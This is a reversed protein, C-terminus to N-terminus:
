KRKAKASKASSYPGYYAKGSASYSIARVKYKYTKGAKLKTHTYYFNGYKDQHSGVLSSTNITVNKKTNYVYIQYKSAGKVPKWTLRIKRKDKGSLAKVSLTTAYPKKVTVTVTKTARNFRNDQAATMTIVATGADKIEVKGTAPDVAAVKSNSSTYFIDTEASAKNDFSGEGLYKIASSGGNITQDAREVKVAIVKEQQRYYKTESSTITIEAEGAGITKLNGESDVRVVDINDSEFTFEADKNLAKDQLNVTDGYTITMDDLNMLNRTKKKYKYVEWVQIEGNMFKDTLDVKATTTEASANEASNNETSETISFAAKVEEVDTTIEEKGNSDKYKYALVKEGFDDKTFEAPMPDPIEFAIGYFDGAKVTVTVTKEVGIVENVRVTVDAKGKKLAEVKGSNDVKIVDTDAPAAEFSFTYNVEGKVSPELNGTEEEALTLDSCTIEVSDLVTVKVDQTKPEDSPTASPTESSEGEGEQELKEVPDETTGTTTGNETETPTEGAPEKATATITITADGEGVATVKGETDVSAVSDDSSEYSFDYDGEPKLQREAGRVITFDDVGLAKAQTETEEASETAFAPVAIMTGVMVISILISLLKKNM